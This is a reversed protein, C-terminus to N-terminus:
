EAATEDTARMRKVFHRLFFVLAVGEFVRGAIKLLAFLGPRNMAVAFDAIVAFAIEFSIGFLMKAIAKVLESRLAHLFAASVVIMVCVATSIVVLLVLSFPLNM